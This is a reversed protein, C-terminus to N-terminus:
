GTVVWEDGELVVVVEDSFESAVLGIGYVRSDGRDESLASCFSGIDNVPDVTACDGAYSEGMAAIAAGIADEPTNVAAPPATELYALQEQAFALVEEASYGPAGTM